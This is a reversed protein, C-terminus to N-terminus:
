APSLSHVLLTGIALLIMIHDFALLSSSSPIGHHIVIRRDLESTQLSGQQQLKHKFHHQVAKNLLKKAFM